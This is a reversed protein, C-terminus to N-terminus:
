KQFTLTFIFFDPLTVPYHFLIRLTPGAISLYVAFIHLSLFIVFEVSLM